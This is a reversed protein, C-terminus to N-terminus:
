SGAPTEAGQASPDFGLQQALETAIRTLEVDTIGDFNEIRVEKKEVFMGIERGLLELCKIAENAKQPANTENGQKDFAQVVKGNAEYQRLLEAIVWAKDVKIREVVEDAATDQLLKIRAVIAPNKHEYLGPNKIPLGVQEIAEKPPCGTARLQAYKEQQPDLGYRNLAAEKGVIPVPKSEIEKFETYEAL